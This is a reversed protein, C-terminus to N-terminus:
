NLPDLLHRRYKVADWDRLIQRNKSQDSLAFTARLKIIADHAPLGNITQRGEPTLSSRIGQTLSEISLM